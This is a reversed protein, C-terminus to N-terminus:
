YQGSVNGFVEVGQSRKGRSDTIYTQPDLLAHAVDLKCTGTGDNHSSCLWVYVKAGSGTLVTTIWVGKEPSYTAYGRQVLGHVLANKSARDFERRFVWNM